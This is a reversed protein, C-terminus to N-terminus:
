DGVGIDNAYAQQIIRNEESEHKQLARILENVDEIISEQDPSDGRLRVVLTETWSLLESHEKELHGLASAFRPYESPVSRFLKSSEERAFHSLLRRRLVALTDALDSRWANLSEPPEEASLKGLKDVVSM